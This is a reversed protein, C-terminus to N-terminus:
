AGLEGVGGATGVFEADYGAPMSWKSSVLSLWGIARAPTPLVVASSWPFRRWPGGDFEDAVSVSDDGLLSPKRWGPPYGLVMPPRPGAVVQDTPTHVAFAAWIPSICLHTWSSRSNPM